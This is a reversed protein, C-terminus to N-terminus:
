KLEQSTGFHDHPVLAAPLLVDPSVTTPLSMVRPQQVSAPCGDRRLPKKM